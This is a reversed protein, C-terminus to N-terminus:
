RHNETQQVVEAAWHQMKNWTASEREDIPNVIWDSVCSLVSSARVANINYRLYSSSFFSPSWCTFVTRFCNYSSPLFHPQFIPSFISSFGWFVQIRQRFILPFRRIQSETSQCRQRSWDDTNRARNLVVRAFSWPSKIKIVWLDVHDPFGIVECNM